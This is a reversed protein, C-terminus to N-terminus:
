PSLWLERGALPSTPSAAGSEDLMRAVRVFSPSAVPARQDFGVRFTASMEGGRFTLSMDGGGRTASFNAASQAPPSQSPSIALRVGKVPSAAPSAVPTRLIALMESIRDERAVEASREAAAESERAVTTPPLAMAVSANAIEEDPIPLFESKATLAVEDNYGGGTASTNAAAAVPACATGKAPSKQPLLTSSRVRRFGPRRSKAVAVLDSFNDDATVKFNRGASLARAALAAATPRAPAAVSAAANAAAHVAAESRTTLSPRVPPPAHPRASAPAPPPQVARRPAPRPPRDPVTLPSSRLPQPQVSPTRATVGRVALGGDGRAGSRWRGRQQGVGVPALLLGDVDGSNDGLDFSKHAATGVVSLTLPAAEAAPRARRPVAAPVRPQPILSTQPTQAASSGARNFHDHTLPARVPEVITAVSSNVSSTNVAFSQAASSTRGDMDAYRALLEAQAARERVSLGGERTAHVPAPLLRSGSIDGNGSGISGATGDMGGDRSAASESRNLESAVKGSVAAAASRKAAAVASLGAANASTDPLAPLPSGRLLARLPEVIEDDARDVAARRATAAAAAASVAAGGSVGSRVRARIAAAEADVM